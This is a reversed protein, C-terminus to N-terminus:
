IGECILDRVGRWANAGYVRTNITAESLQHNRLLGCHLARHHRAMSLKGRKLFSAPEWREVSIKREM